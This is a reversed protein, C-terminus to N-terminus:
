WWVNSAITTATTTISDIYMYKAKRICLHNSTDETNLFILERINHQYNEQPINNQLNEQPDLLLLNPDPIAQVVYDTITDSHYSKIHDKLKQKQRFARGPCHPCPFPQEGSHIM